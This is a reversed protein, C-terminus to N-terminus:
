LLNIIDTHGYAKAYDVAQNGINNQIRPNAGKLLLLQCIDYFGNEAARM